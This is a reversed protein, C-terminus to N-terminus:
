SEADQPDRTTGGSWGWGRRVAERVHRFVTAGATGSLASRFRCWWLQSREVGRSTREPARRDLPRHEDESSWPKLAILTIRDRLEPLYPMRCEYASSFGADVLRNLLSPRTLWFSRTNDLSAWPLARRQEPTSSPDHERFYRGAYEQRNYIEYASPRLSVHTDIVFVHECCRACADILRFVDPADLHYLIGLCLIVDFAGYKELSVNRVDDHVFELNDLGLVRKAFEAKALNSARGEIGIVWAGRRALEVSFLGELCGLDLVRLTAFEARCLDSVLRVIRRARLEDDTVEGGVTYVGDCLQLNHATWPGHQAVIKAKEAEVADRDTM